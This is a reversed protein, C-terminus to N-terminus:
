NPLAPPLAIQSVPNALSCDSTVKVANGLNLIEDYDASSIELDPAITYWDLQVNSEWYYIKEFTCTGKISNWTFFDGNIMDQTYPVLNWGRRLNRQDLPLPAELSYKTPRVGGSQESYVWHAANEFYEDGIAVIKDNEPNPYIRIYGKNIPDLAFVAKISDPSISNDRLQDPGGFGLILNWGREIRVGSNIQAAAVLTAILLIVTTIIIIKKM